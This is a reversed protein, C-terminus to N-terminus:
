LSYQDHKKSRRNRSLSRMVRTFVNGSKKKKNRGRGSRSNPDIDEVLLAPNKHPIASTGTYEAYIEHEKCSRNSRMTNSKSPFGIASNKTTSNKAMSRSPSPDRSFEQFLEQERISGSRQSSKRNIVDASTNSLPLTGTCIVEPANTLSRMPFDPKSDEPAKPVSPKRSPRRSTKIETIMITDTTGNPNQLLGETVIKQHVIEGEEDQEIKVTENSVISTELVVPEDDIFKPVTSEINSRHQKDLEAIADAPHQHTSNETIMGQAKHLDTIQRKLDVCLM